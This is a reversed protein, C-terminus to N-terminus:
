KLWMSHDFTELKGVVPDVDRLSYTETFQQNNWNRIFCGPQELVIWDSVNFEHGYDGLSVRMQGDIKTSEEAIHNKGHESLFDNIQNLNDGKWQIAEVEHYHGYRM